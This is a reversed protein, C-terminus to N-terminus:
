VPWPPAHPETSLGGVQDIPCRQEESRRHVQSAPVIHLHLGEECGFLLANCIAVWDVTLQLITIIEIATAIIVRGHRQQPLTLSLLCSHRFAEM